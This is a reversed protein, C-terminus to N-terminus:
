SVRWWEGNIIQFDISHWHTAGANDLDVTDILYSATGDVNGTQATFTLASTGKMKFRFIFGNNAASATPLVIAKTGEVVFRTGGTFSCSFPTTTIEGGDPGTGFWPKAQLTGNGVGMLLSRDPLTGSSGLIGTGGQAASLATTLGQIQTIDANVGSLAFALLRLPSVCKDDISRAAVEEENAFEVIGATNESATPLIVNVQQWNTGNITGDTSTCFYLDEHVTDYAYIGPLAAGIVGQPNVECLIVIRQDIQNLLNAFSTGNNGSISQFVM